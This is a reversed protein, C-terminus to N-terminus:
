HSYKDDFYEIITYVNKNIVAMDDTLDTYEQHTNSVIGKNADISSQDNPNGSPDNDTYQFWHWGICNKAELLRITFSQYHDARDQQTKVFFGAGTTNALKDENEEAKAYFETVMFPIDANVAFDYIDNANPEWQFYWNVTICDLYESAFRLVWPADKVETLFRTGLIMHNQDYKRIAGCVVNYYRDWVFGRFLEKLEDTIDENNPTETGTMQVIWYWTCAYSYINVNKEPSVNMYNYIMDSQMPLENDTTYGLFFPNNAYQPVESAAKSESFTVFGPDFVPMTNNESFTTSGGNSNNVGISTGYAGMFGPGGQWIMGHLVTKIQSSPSACANFYLENQLHRTTSIAWKEFTGYLLEAAEKQKPSNQYSYVVGSLARIYCPYGLPDIIWWRDGIKKSYFYGTPKQRIQEDIIGGYKDFKTEKRIDVYESIDTLASYTRTKYEKMVASPNSGPSLTIKNYQREDSVILEAENLPKTLLESYRGYWEDYVQKAYDWIAQNEAEDAVLQKTYTEDIAKPEKYIVFHPFSLETAKSFVIRTETDTNVTQVIMLSITKKGSNVLTKLAETANAKRVSRPDVNSIIPTDSLLAPKTNWTVTKEDWNEDVWYIDFPVYMDKQISSFNVNFEAYGIDDLSIESIDYKFLGVRAVNSKEMGNKIIVMDELNREELIQHWNKDAYSGGRVYAKDTVTLMSTGSSESNIFEPADGAYLKVDDISAITGYSKDGVLFSIYEGRGGVNKDTLTMISYTKQEKKSSDTYEVDYFVLGDASKYIIHNATTTTDIEQLDSTPLKTVNTEDVVHTTISDIDYGNLTRAKSKSWTYIAKPTTTGVLVGDIYVYFTRSFAINESPHALDSNFSEFFGRNAIDNKCVIAIHTWTDKGINVGPILTKTDSTLYLKGENDVYLLQIAQDLGGDEYVFLPARKNQDTGGFAFDKIKIESVWSTTSLLQYAQDKIGFNDGGSIKVYANGNNETEIKINDNGRALIHTPDNNVASDSVTKGNTLTNYTDFGNSYYYTFGDLTCINYIKIDDLDISYNYNTKGVNCFDFSATSTTTFSLSELLFSNDWTKKVFNHGRLDTNIAASEIVPAGNIFISVTNTADFWRVSIDMFEGSQPTYILTDNVPSGDISINVNSLYIRGLGDAKLLTCSAGSTSGARRLVVLPMKNTDNETGNARFKFDFAVSNGLIKNGIGFTGIRAGSSNEANNFTYRLYSNGSEEDVIELEGGSTSTLVELGNNCLLGEATTVNQDKFYAGYSSYAGSKFNEFDYYCYYDGQQSVTSNEALSSISLCQLLTMIVLALAVFRM